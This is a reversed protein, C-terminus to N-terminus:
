SIIKHYEYRTTITVLDRLCKILYWNYFLFLGLFLHRCQMIILLYNSAIFFMSFVPHGSTSLGSVSNSGTHPKFEFCSSKQEDFSNSNSCNGSLSLSVSGGYGHMMQSNFFSGTTPSPEAQLNSPFNLYVKYLILM